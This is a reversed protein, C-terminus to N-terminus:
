GHLPVVRFDTGTGLFSIGDSKCGGGLSIRKEPAEEDVSRCFGSRFLGEHTKQGLLLRV